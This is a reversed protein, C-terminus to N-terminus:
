NEYVYNTVSQVDIVVGDKKLMWDCLVDPDFNNGAVATIRVPRSFDVDTVELGSPNTKLQTQGDVDTYSFTATQYGALPNYEKYLKLTCAVPPESSNNKDDLKEKKCSLLSVAMALFLLKKM